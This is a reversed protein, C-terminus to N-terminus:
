LKLFPDDMPILADGQQVLIFDRPKKIKDIICPKKSTSRWDIELKHTGSIGMDIGEYEHLIRYLQSKSIKNEKCIEMVQKIKNRNYESIVKIKTEYSLEM